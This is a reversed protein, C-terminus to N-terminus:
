IGSRVQLRNIHKFLFQFAHQFDNQLSLLTYETIKLWNTVVHTINNTLWNYQITNQIEYYCSFAYFEAINVALVLLVAIKWIRDMWWHVLYLFVFQYNLFTQWSDHLRYLICYLMCEIMTEPSLIARLGELGDNTLRTMEKLFNTILTHATHITTSRRLIHRASKEHNIVVITLSLKM